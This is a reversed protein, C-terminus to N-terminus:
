HLLPDFLRWDRRGTGVPLGEDQVGPLERVHPGDAVDLHWGVGELRDEARKPQVVVALVRRLELLPVRRGDVLLLVDLEGDPLGRLVHDLRHHVGDGKPEALKGVLKRGGEVGLAGQIQGGSRRSIAPAGGRGEGQNRSPTAVFQRAAM